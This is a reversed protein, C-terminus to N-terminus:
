KLFVGKWDTHKLIDRPRHVMFALSITPRIITGPYVYLQFLAISQAGFFFYGLTYLMCDEGSFLFYLQWYHLHFSQINFSFFKSNSCSLFLATTTVLTASGSVLVLSDRPNEVSNWRLNANYVGQLFDFHYEERQITLQLIPITMTFIWMNVGPRSWTSLSLPSDWSLMSIWHGISARPWGLWHSFQYCATDPSM